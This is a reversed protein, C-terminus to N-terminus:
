LFFAEPRGAAADRIRQAHDTILTPLRNLDFYAIESTEGSPRITGGTIECLFSVRVTHWEQGQAIHLSGKPDSYIGILKVVEAKLGTEEFLERACAQVLTEGLDVHGGPVCWLGNDTRKALLVEGQGNFVFANVAIKPTTQPKHTM